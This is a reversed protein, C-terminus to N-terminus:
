RLDARIIALLLLSPCQSRASSTRLGRLRCSKWASAEAPRRASRCRSARPLDLGHRSTVIISPLRGFVVLLGNCLGAAAGALLVGLIGLAVEESSDVLPPLRLRTGACSSIMGASLDVGRTIVVLTQAMSVLGLVVAKNAATDLVAVKWGASNEGIYAGFMAAFVLATLIPAFNQALWLRINSM